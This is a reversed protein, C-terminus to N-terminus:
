PELCTEVAARIVAQEAPPARARSAARHGAGVGASSARRGILARKQPATRRAPFVPRPLPSERPAPRSKRGPGGGFQDSPEIGRGPKATRSQWLLRWIMPWGPDLMASDHADPPPLRRAAREVYAEFAQRLGPSRAGQWTLRGPQRRWSPMIPRSTRWGQEPRPGSAREM